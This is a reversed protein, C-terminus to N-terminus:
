AFLMVVTDASAEAYASCSVKITRTIPQSKNIGRHFYNSYTSIAIVGFEYEILFRM